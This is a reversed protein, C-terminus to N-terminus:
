TRENTTATVSGDQNNHENTQNGKKRTEIAIEM